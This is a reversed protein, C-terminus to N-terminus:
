EGQPVQIPKGKPDEFRDMTHINALMSFGWYCVLAFFFTVILGVWLAISFIEGCQWSPGFKAEKLDFVQLMMGPFSLGIRYKTNKSATAAAAPAFTGADSCDFATGLPASVIYGLKSKVKIDAERMNESGLVMNDATIKTLRYEKKKKQFTMKLIIGQLKLTSGSFEQDKWDLSVSFDSVTKNTSTISSGKVSKASRDLLISDVPRSGNGQEFVHVVIGKTVKLLFNDSFFEEPGQLSEPRAAAKARKNDEAASVVLLGCALLVLLRASSVM